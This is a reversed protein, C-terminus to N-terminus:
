TACLRELFSYAPSHYLCAGPPRLVSAFAPTTTMVVVVIMTTTMMMRMMMQMPMM